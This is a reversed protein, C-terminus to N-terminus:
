AVLRAGCHDCVSVHVEGDMSMFHNTVDHGCERQRKERYAASAKRNCDACHGDVVGLGQRHEEAVLEADLDIM